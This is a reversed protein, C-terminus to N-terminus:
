SVLYAFFFFGSLMLVLAFDQKRLLRREERSRGPSINDSPASPIELYQFEKEEGTHNEEPKDM